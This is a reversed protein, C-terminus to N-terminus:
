SPTLRSTARWAWISTVNGLWVGRIGPLKSRRKCYRNRTLYEKAADFLGSHATKEVLNQGLPLDRAGIQLFFLIVLYTPRSNPLFHM